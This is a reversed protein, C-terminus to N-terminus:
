LIVLQLILIQRSINISIWFDCIVKVSATECIIWRLRESLLFFYLLANINKILFSVIVSKIIQRSTYLQLTLISSIDRPPFAFVPPAATARSHCERRESRYDPKEMAERKAGGNEM